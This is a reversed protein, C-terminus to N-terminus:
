RKATRLAPPQDRQSGRDSFHSKYSLFRAEFFHFSVSAVATTIALGVAMFTLTGLLPSSFSKLPVLKEFIPHMPFHFVYMGYSYRGFFRLSPRRLFRALRTHRTSAAVIGTFTLAWCTPVYVDALPSGAPVGAGLDPRKSTYMIVLAFIAAPIAFWQSGTAWLPRAVRPGRAELALAAGFLLADVRCITLTYAGLDHGPMVAILVWRSLVAIGAFVFCITILPKRELKWVVFPWVLYFQEEVALSWLHNIANFPWANKIAVAVNSTYTWLWIQHTSIEHLKENHPALIPAALVFLLVIAYYLPFIRLVRRGFFNRLYSDSARSDWLVGTILYGSLVFFLDVGVHGVKTWRWLGEYPVVVNAWLTLHYFVVTLIAVGRVGDLAAVHQKSPPTAPAATTTVGDLRELARADADWTTIGRCRRV